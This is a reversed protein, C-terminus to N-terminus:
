HELKSSFQDSNNRCAFDFLNFENFYYQKYLNRNTSTLTVNVIMLVVKQLSENELTQLM